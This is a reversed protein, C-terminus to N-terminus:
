SRCMFSIWAKKAFSGVQIVEVAVGLKGALVHILNIGARFFDDGADQRLGLSGSMGSFPTPAALSPAAEGPPKIVV